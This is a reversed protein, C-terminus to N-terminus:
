QKRAAQVFYTGEVMSWLIVTRCDHRSHSLLLKNKTVTVDLTRCATCSCRLARVCIDDSVSTVSYCSVFCTVDGFALERGARVSTRM